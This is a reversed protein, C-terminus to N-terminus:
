PQKWKLIANWFQSAQDLEEQKPTSWGQSIELRSIMVRHSHPFKSRIPNKMEIALMPVNVGSHKAWEQLYQLEIFSARYAALLRVEESTFASYGTVSSVSLVLEASQLKSEDPLSVFHAQRLLRKVGGIYGDM